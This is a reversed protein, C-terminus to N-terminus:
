PFASDCPQDISGIESHLNRRPQPTADYHRVTGANAVGRYCWINHLWPTSLLINLNELGAREAAGDGRREMIRRMIGYGNAVRTQNAKDKAPHVVGHM